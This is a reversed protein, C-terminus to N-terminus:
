TIQILADMLKKTVLSGIDKVREQFPTLEKALAPVLSADFSSRTNKLRWQLINAVTEANAYNPLGRQEYAIIKTMWTHSPKAVKSANIIGTAIRYMTLNYAATAAADDEIVLSDFLIDKGVSACQAASM